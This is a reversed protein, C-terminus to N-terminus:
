KEGVFINQNNIEILAQKQGSIMESNAIRQYMVLESLTKLTVSCLQLIFCISSLLQGAM